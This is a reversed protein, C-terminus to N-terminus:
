LLAPKSEDPGEGPTRSTKKAAEEKIHEHHRVLYTEPNILPDTIITALFSKLYGLQWCANALLDGQKDGSSKLADELMEEIVRKAETHKM